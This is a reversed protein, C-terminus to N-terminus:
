FDNINSMVIEYRISCVHFPLTQNKKKKLERRLCCVWSEATYISAACATLSAIGDTYYFDSPKIGEHFFPQEESKWTVLHGGNSCPALSPSLGMQSPGHRM